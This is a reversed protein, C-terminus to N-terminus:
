RHIEYYTQHRSNCLTNNNNNNNNGRRHNQLRQLCITIHRPHAIHLRSTSLLTHLSTRPSKYGERSVVPTMTAFLFLHLVVLQSVSVFNYDPSLFPSTLKFSRTTSPLIIKLLEQVIRFSRIRSLACCNATTFVTTFTGTAYFTRLKQVLHAVTLKKALASCRATLLMIRHLVTIPLSHRVDCETHTTPNLLVTKLAALILASRRAM